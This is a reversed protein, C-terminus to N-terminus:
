ALAHCAYNYSRQQEKRTWIGLSLPSRHESSLTKATIIPRIKERYYNNSHQTASLTAKSIKKLTDGLEKEIYKIVSDIKPDIRRQELLFLAQQFENLILMDQNSLAELDLNKILPLQNELYTRIDISHAIKNFKNNQINKM